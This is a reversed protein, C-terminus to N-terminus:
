AGIERTQGSNRTKRYRQMSEVLAYASKQSFQSVSTGITSVCVRRLRLPRRIRPDPAGGTAHLTKM